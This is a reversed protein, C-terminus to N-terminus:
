YYGLYAAVYYTGDYMYSIVHTKNATSIDPPDGDDTLWKVSAPHAVTRATAGQVILLTFHGPKPPATYTLTENGAPTRKQIQGKSWDITTGSNVYIDYTAAGSLVPESDESINELFSPGVQHKYVKTGM